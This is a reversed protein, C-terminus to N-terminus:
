TWDVALILESSELGAKELENTVEEISKFRDAIAFRGSMSTKQARARFSKTGIGLFSM